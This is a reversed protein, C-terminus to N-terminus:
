CHQSPKLHVTFPSLWVYVHVCEGGFEGRDLSRCSMSNWTSYLPDKNTIWKLYLPTDIDIGFEQTIGTGWRERKTVMLKNELETPLKSVRTKICGLIDVHKRAWQRRVEEDKWAGQEMARMMDVPVKVLM